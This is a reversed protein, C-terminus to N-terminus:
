VIGERAWRRWPYKLNEWKLHTTRAVCYGAEHEANEGALVGQIMGVWAEPSHVPRLCNYQGEIRYTLPQILYGDLGCTRMISAGGAYDGHLVPVGCALSEFLPFGFGEPGIGLTLACARYEAALQADTIPPTTVEVIDALGFDELLAPISWHRIPDDTHVWWRVDPGVEKLGRAIAAWVGFDKRAQNTAVVGIRVPAPEPLLLGGDARVPEDSVGSEECAGVLADPEAGRDNRPCWVKGLGHPLWTIGRKGAEEEGITSRVVEEGWPSYALLRDFGLLTERLMASLRNGPGVADIPLYGWLRFKLRSRAERLWEQAPSEFLDPRALWQLRSLDWITLIIGREGQSFEDWVSPLSFQGEEHDHLHYQSWPLRSSGVGMWGLTGVRWEMQGTLVTALDRTIRALGSSQSPDDSLLLIPTPMM